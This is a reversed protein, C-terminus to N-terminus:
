PARAFMKNFKLEASAGAFITTATKQLLLNEPKSAEQKIAAVSHALQAARCALISGYITALSVRLSSCKLTGCVNGKEFGRVGNENDKM